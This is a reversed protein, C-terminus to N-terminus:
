KQLYLVRNMFYQEVSEVIPGSQESDAKASVWESDTTFSNWRTNRTEIDPYELIYYLTEKGQADEWFDVVQIQHKKFLNLTVSEFRQHIAAMKGPYM